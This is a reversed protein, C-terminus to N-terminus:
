FWELLRKTPVSRNKEKKREEWTKISFIMRPAPKYGVSGGGLNPLHSCKDRSNNRDLVKTRGELLSKRPAPKPIISQQTTCRVPKKEDSYPGSNASKETLTMEVLDNESLMKAAVSKEVISNSGLNRDSSSTEIKTRKIKRTTSRQVTGRHFHQEAQKSLVRSDPSASSRKEWYAIDKKLSTKRLVSGEEQTKLLEKSESNSAQIIEVQKEKSNHSPLSKLAIDHSENLTLDFKEDVDDLDIQMSLKEFIEEDDSLDDCIENSLDDFMEEGDSLSIVQSLNPSKETTPLNPSEDKSNQRVDNSKLVNQNETIERNKFAELVVDHLSAIEKRPNKIDPSIETTEDDSECKISDRSDIAKRDVIEDEYIPSLSDFDEDSFPTLPTLSDATDLAPTTKVDLVESKIHQNDADLNNKCITMDIKLNKFNKKKSTRITSRAIGGRKFEGLTLDEQYTLSLKEDDEDIPKLNSDQSGYNQYINTNLSPVSDHLSTILQLDDSLSVDAVSCSQEEPFNSTLCAVDLCSINLMFM